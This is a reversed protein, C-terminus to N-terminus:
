CKLQFSHFAEQLEVTCLKHQICYQYFELWNGKKYVEDLLLKNDTPNMFGM